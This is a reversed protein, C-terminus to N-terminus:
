TPGAEIMVERSALVLHDAGREVIDLRHYILPDDRRQTLAIPTGCRTELRHGLLEHDKVSAAFGSAETADQRQGRRRQLRPHLLDEPSPKVREGLKRFLCASASRLRTMRRFVRERPDLAGQDECRRLPVGLEELTREVIQRADEQRCLSCCPTKSNKSEHPCATQSNWYWDQKASPSAVERPPERQM